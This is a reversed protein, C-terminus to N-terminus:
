SSSFIGSSFQFLVSLYMAMRREFSCMGEQRQKKIKKVLEDVFVLKKMELCNKCSSYTVHLISLCYNNTSCFTSFFYYFLNSFYFRWNKM